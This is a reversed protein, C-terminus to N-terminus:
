FYTWTLHVAQETLVSRALRRQDLSEGTHVRRVGSLDAPHALSDFDRVRLGRDLETDRGHILFEVDDVPQSDRLVDEEPVLEISEAESSAARQHLLGSPQELPEAVARHRRVGIDPRQT